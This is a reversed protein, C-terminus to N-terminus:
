ASLPLRCFYFGFMILLVSDCYFSQPSLGEEFQAVDLIRRSPFAAGNACPLRFSTSGGVRIDMMTTTWTLIMNSIMKNKKFRKNMMDEDETSYPHTQNDEPHFFDSGLFSGAESLCPHASNESCYYYYVHKVILHPFANIFFLTRSFQHLGKHCLTVLRSAFCRFILLHLVPSLYWM